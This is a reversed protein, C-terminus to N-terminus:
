NGVGDFHAAAVVAQGLSLGGDNCPVQRHLLVECDCAALAAATRELLLVNQFVGGTLAVRRVGTRKVLRTVVSVVLDRLANHFAGAISPAREGRELDGVVGRIISGPDAIVLEGAERLETAYSRTTSRDAIAELEMAAQAEFEARDRVGALAAVADFLRGVSSTPPSRFGRSMMQRLLPWERAHRELLALSLGEVGTGFANALHAAAMRWPERVAAEVGPLPVYGLQALRESRAGEVLLFEGGWVAGDTGVGSGDFVVGLVPETVGHEAVCAAVHAHHHQVAVTPRDMTLALRTSAYDAHLDHGVIEPEVHYLRRFHELGSRLAALADPHELDGIHQSLIAHHGRGLCFVNKMQGGVGLVPAPFPRRVRVPAPAYGRARRLFRPEGAAVQVVSDDCRAAVLRDHTLFGDATGGLREFADADIFAIPEDSRNGSTMVVPQGFAALLLHHQPASPLMVGFTATGPAVGRAIRHTARTALLVVPRAATALLQAETESVHAVARAEEVDRVMLALPKAARHKRDRLRAVAADDTADCCLHYGGLGKVALIGGSRLLQLARALADEGSAELPLAGAARFGLTPGCDPCAIHQAHFRRDTPDEYERRCAACMEFAAMTTRARDFPIAQQITFRPGCNTCSIFPHRYRRSAPDFLEALCQACTAADPAVLATAAGQSRSETVAFGAFDAAPATDVSVTDIM